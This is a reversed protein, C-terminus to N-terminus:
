YSTLAVCVSPTTISEWDLTKELSLDIVSIDFPEWPWPLLASDPFSPAKRSTHISAASTLTNKDQDSHSGSLLPPEVLGVVYPTCCSSHM